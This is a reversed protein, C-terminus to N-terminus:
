QPSSIDIGYIAQFANFADALGEEGESIISGSESGSIDVPTGVATFTNGTVYYRKGSGWSSIATDSISQFTNRLVFISVPRDDDCNSELSATNVGVVGDHVTNYIVAANIPCDHLVVIPRDGPPPDHLDNQSIVVNSAEKIDVSNEGNDYMNNRGIYFDGLTNDAQHGLQISDGRNRHIHSDVVWMRHTQGAGVGHVDEEGVFTFDGNDWIHLDFLVVDTSNVVYVVTSHDGPRFGHVDSHRFVLHDGSIGMGRSATTLDFDMNEVLVYSGVIGANGHVVTKAEASSGRVVIPCEATGEGGIIADRASHPGGTIEVVTGAPLDSLGSLSPQSATEVAPCGAMPDEATGFPPIPIGAPPAWDGTWAAAAPPGDDRPPESEVGPTSSSGCGLAFIALIAAGRPIM